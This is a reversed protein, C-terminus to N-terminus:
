HYCDLPSSRAQSERDVKKKGTAESTEPHLLVGPCFGDPPDRHTESEASGAHWGSDPDFNAKLKRKEGRRRFNTDLQTPKQEQM